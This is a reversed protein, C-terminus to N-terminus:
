KITNTTTDQKPIAFMPTLLTLFRNTGGLVRERDTIYRWHQTSTNLELVVAAVDAKCDIIDNFLV